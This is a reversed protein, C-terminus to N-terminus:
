KEMLEIVTERLNDIQSMAKSFISTFAKSDTLYLDATLAFNSDYLEIKVMKNRSVDGMVANLNVRTYPSGYTFTQMLCVYMPSTDRADIVVWYSRGEKKFTIDGDSDISPSYGENRVFQFIEDRLTRQEYNFNKQCFAGAASMVALALFLIRKKM